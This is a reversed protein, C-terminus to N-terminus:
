MTRPKYVLGIVIGVMIWEGLAAAAQYLALTRGINLTVYNTGVFAFQVFIGVLLGFRFGEALGSGGKYGNAYIAAIVLMAIFLGAFGLPMYTRVVISSRYVAPYPDYQQAILMGYVLFGYILDAVIAAVAALVIRRYNM